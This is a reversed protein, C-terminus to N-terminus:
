HQHESKKNKLPFVWKQWFKAPKWKEIPWKEGVVRLM